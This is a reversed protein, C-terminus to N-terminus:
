LKSGHIAKRVAAVVNERMTGDHLMHGGRTVKPAFLARGYKKGEALGWFRATRLCVVVREGAEAQPFLVCQAWDLSARSSPLGALLPADAFTRSHYAGINLIAICSKLEDWEGFCGTRAKWWRWAAYHEDPGPLPQLGKRTESYRRQGEKSTADVLDKDDFGPSLYLLVVPATKLPGAFCGPLCRLDFGHEVRSLIRYDRPHVRDKPGVESWFDFIDTAM